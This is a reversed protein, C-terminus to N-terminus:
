LMRVVYPMAGSTRLPSIKVVDGSQPAEIMQNNGLYLAVHESANAGYFIMDGRQMESLPYHPGAQYQYGTYHPLSIGVGAFAYIMLGSCDFGPHAYDGYSDAVGGDRIGLTPGNADGGGWSYRVGLQSMARNVVIEVGASGTVTPNDTGTSTGDSPTGSQSGDSSSDDLGDLSGTSSGLSGLPDSLDLHGNQLKAVMAALLKQGANTALKLAAEGAVQMAANSAAEFDSGGAAPTAGPAGAAPTAGPVPAAAPTPGAVAGGTRLKDLAAQAQDRAETLKQRNKQADAVATSASNIEKRANGLLAAANNTAWQAQQQSAATAAVKNANANRAQKLRDIVGQQQRSLRDIASARDLAAGPDSAGSLLSVTSGDGGNRYVNRVFSNFQDQAQKIANNSDNLSQKAGVAAAAALRQSSRANQLDVLARNVAERKGALQEDLDSLQQNADAIKNVLSAIQGAPSQDAPDAGAWGAGAAGAGAIVGAVSVSAIAARLWGATRRM